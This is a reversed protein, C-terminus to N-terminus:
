QSATRKGEGLSPRRGGGGGGFFFIFIFFLFYFLFLLIFVSVGSSIIRRDPVSSGAFAPVQARSLRTSCYSSRFTCTLYESRVRFLGIAGGPPHM